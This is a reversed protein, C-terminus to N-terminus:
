SIRFLRKVFYFPAFLLKTFRYDFRGLLHKMYINERYLELPDSLYGDYLSKHRMYILKDIDKAMDPQNAIVDRSVTNRRYFFHVDPLRYVKVGIELLSLWFDWDEKGFCFGTHYGDVKAWDEKRFFAASFIINGALEQEISFPPLPWFENIAGFMRARSYVIGINSNSDLVAVAQRMYQGSIKDDADLPLIYEGKAHAIGVNRASSPGRNSQHIIFIRQKSLQSLIDLTKSDTSGDNVVIIEYDNYDSSLVSDIADKMYEGHNYCPIVVSVKPEKEFM